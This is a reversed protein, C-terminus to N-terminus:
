LKLYMTLYRQIHWLLSLANAKADHWGPCLLTSTGLDERELYIDTHARALLALGAKEAERQRVEWQDGVPSAGAAAPVGSLVDVVLLLPVTWSLSVAVTPVPRLLLSMLLSPSTMMLLATVILLSGVLLLSAM